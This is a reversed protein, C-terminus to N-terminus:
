LANGTGSGGGENGPVLQKAVGTHSLYSYSLADSLAPLEIYLRDLLDDLEMRLGEENVKGLREVQTLRLLSLLGIIIREETTRAPLAHEGPLQAVHEAIRAVQFAISRPNSEDTLLLDLVASAQLSALYRRRYTMISDGIELVAELLPAEVTTPQVLTTRMLQATQIAREIRCGLDLFTWGQGRTMSETVLGNFAVLPIISRNLLATAEGLHLRALPRPPEFDQDLTYIIRWTDGSLRDRAMSAVRRLDAIINRISGTTKEDYILALLEQRVASTEPTTAGLAGAYQGSMHGISHLLTVLEPSNDFSSQESLRTLVVRMIRIMGEAREVYRGLWYLNDAVRSPLDGGGRTLAVQDGPHQLLSFPVVPGDSPVWTDKSGGGRQMSVVLSDVTAGIRTLAGPMVMFGDTTASMFTRLMMHRPELRGNVYLPTTSLPVKEQAVYEIPRQGIRQALDQLQADSLNDGFVPEMARGAGPFAPKIVLQRLNALVYDVHGPEGCWWTNVSSLLLDQGLMARCLRPLYPLIAPTELLGSGLANAVAVKGSRVAQTLGAVGLTSNGRLELPDAYDDDLRRLIVDVQHLGGLTKLYVCNDRVTLDGGEVLTFGLYRALYAHEFYTENMPGPTLVVIHPNDRHQPALETVTQRLTRFFPALRRVKCERFAETLTSSLVIRNELAYGMGSPAQTRDGLVWWQGDSGRGLDAAYLHLYRRGPVNIDHCPRLFNPHALVLAPPLLNDRLLTQPGYLDALILDLLQARQVLGSEMQRWQELSLMVPLADLQWPREMGRPDGYVNYTVGNEHILRRAQEWRATLEMPGLDGLLQSLTQWHDHLTGDPRRMEDLSSTPLQYLDFMSAASPVEGSVGQSM